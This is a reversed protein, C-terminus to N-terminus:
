DDHRLQNCRTQRAPRVTLNADSDDLYGGVQQFFAVLHRGVHDGVGDAGIGSKAREEADLDDLNTQGVNEAHEFVVEMVVRMCQAMINM